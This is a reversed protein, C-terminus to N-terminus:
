SERFFLVFGWLSFCFIPFFSVAFVVGFFEHIVPVTPIVYFFEIGVRYFYEVDGCCGM